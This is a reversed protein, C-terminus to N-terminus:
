RFRKSGDVSAHTLRRSSEKGPDGTLVFAAWYYPHPYKKRTATQAGQLAEAKRMGAKLRCYFEKMLLSTAEDNVTWLSAIVSSAGAYIFARNLGIIDDGKSLAGLQTECASLVVLNTKALDMGYVERVEIAGSDGTAPSLLIRSFLPSNSNLEAHAAIHVVSYARARKMFEAKTARGTLLPQTHYLKAVGAAEKDVYSLAPQGDAHSQAVALVREGQADVGPRISQPISASPLFSIAYEDGFYRRGDTLAAFPVYHLLSHPVIVVEATKLYQRIPAILWAHLQKLSQPQPDRLSAFGRFWEIAARLDTEKVPIDVAQFSDSSVIFALTKDATVFYSVLTTQPGLFRQIENLPRPSYSQLEAYKPNSAKLRILVTNYTEAKEKLSAAMLAAAESRPNERREKRLKEELSGMEFRLSQEQNALEPDGGKRIDIHVNNMQDLFTRARAREALEFAESWKGLKFKLLIAPSLLGAYLSSVGTKLEEIRASSRLSENVALEQDYFSEAQAMNGRKEHVFGLGALILMESQRLGETRALALGKRYLDEAKQYDGDIVSISGLAAFLDIQGGAAGAAELKSLAAVFHKLANSRDGMNTYMYGMERLVYGELGSDEALRRSELAPRLADLAEQYRGMAGYADALNILAEVEHAPEEVERFTAATEKFLKLAYERNNMLFYADAMGSLVVAKLRKDNHQDAFALAKEFHHLATLPEGRRAYITGINNLAYGTMMAEDDNNAECLKLSKKFYDLAVGLEGRASYLLGLNNLATAEGSKDNQAKFAQSAQNYEAIASAMDGVSAHAAGFALHGLAEWAPDNKDKFGNVAARAAELAETKQGLSSRVVSILMLALVEYQWNGSQRYLGAAENLYELAKRKQGVKVSVEGLGKLTLALLPALNLRRVIPLARNLTELAKATEGLSAYAAGISADLFPRLLVDFGSEKSYESAELFANLAERNQGLFYYAGGCAFRTAAMGFKMDQRKFIAFAAKYKKLAETVGERTLSAGLQIAEIALKLTELPNIILPESPQEKDKTQSQRDQPQQGDHSGTEPNALPKEDQQRNVADAYVGTQQLTIAAFGDRCEYTLMSFAILCRIVKAGLTSPFRRHSSVFDPDAGMVSLLQTELNRDHTEQILSLSRELYELGKQKKGLKIYTGGLGVLAMALLEPKKETQLLALAQELYEIAPKWDSLTTHVLGIVALILVRLSPDGSEKIYPAAELFADLARRKQGLKLYSGGAAFLALGMGAALNDKHFCEYAARYKDVAEMLAARTGVGVLRQGEQILKFGEVTNSTQAPWVAPMSLVTQGFIVSVLFVLVCANVVRTKPFASSLFEFGHALRM